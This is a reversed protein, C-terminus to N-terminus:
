ASEDSTNHTDVLKMRKEEIFKLAQKKLEPSDCQEALILVESVNEEDISSVIEDECFLKLSYVDYMDAAALLECLMGELNNVCGTYMFRLMEMLVDLRMEKIHATRNNREEMDNRFMAAFVPSRASLVSMHAPVEVDEAVLTIDSTDPCFLPHKACTLLGEPNKHKIKLTLTIRYGCFAVDREIWSFKRRAIRLTHGVGSTYSAEPLEERVSLTTLCGRGSFNVDMRIEARVPVSDGCGNYLTLVFMMSKAGRPWNDSPFELKLGYECYKGLLLRPASVTTREQNSIIDCASKVPWMIVSEMYGGAMTTRTFPKGIVIPQALPECYRNTM